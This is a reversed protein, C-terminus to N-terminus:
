CSEEEEVVPFYYEYNYTEIDGSVVLYYGIPSYAKTKSVCDYLRHVAAKGRDTVPEICGTATNFGLPAGYIVMNGHRKLTENAFTAIEDVVDEQVIFEELWGEDLAELENLEM